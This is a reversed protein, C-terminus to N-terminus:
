VSSDVPESTTATGSLVSNAAGDILASGGKGGSSKLTSKLWITISQCAVRRKHKNHPHM